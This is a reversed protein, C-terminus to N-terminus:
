RNADHLERHTMRASELASQSDRPVTVDMFYHYPLRHLAQERSMGRVSAIIEPHTGNDVEDDAMEEANLMHDDHLHAVLQEFTMLGAQEMHHDDLLRRDYRAARKHADEDDPDADHDDGWLHPAVNHQWGDEAGYYTIDYGCGCGAIPRGDEDEDDDDDPLGCVQEVAAAISESATSNDICDAIREAEDDTVERGAILDLDAYTIRWATWDARDQQTNM